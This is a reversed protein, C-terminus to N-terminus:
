EYANCADIVHAVHDQTMAPHLPLSVVTEHIAETVPYAAHNWAQLAPQRHPPVPYHILTDIGRDALCRRFADRQPTRVVFLHWVHSASDHPDALQPLSLKPNTIREVYRQAIQRRM